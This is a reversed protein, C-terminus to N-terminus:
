LDCHAEQLDKEGVLTEEAAAHERWESRGAWLYKKVWGLMGLGMQADNILRQGRLPSFCM